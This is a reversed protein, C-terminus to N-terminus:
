PKPSGEREYLGLEQSLQAMEAAAAKAEQFM